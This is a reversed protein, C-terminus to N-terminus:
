RIVDYDGIKSSQEQREIPSFSQFKELDDELSESLTLARVVAVCTVGCKMVDSVNGLDIGGIAVTPISMEHTSALEMSDILNQYLKLKSLGQPQSPMEKTTTAFIHGLAVYSPQYSQARLVEYYGHSSIGLHIGSAILRDLDVQEIDEQGLHVGFAGHEIALQWHDNIFVMANYERGLEIAEIIQQELDRKNGDKIRLQIIKIGLPLLKRIWLIDDVVPYLSFSTKPIQPFCHHNYQEFSDESLRRRNGILKPFDLYNTPWDPMNNKEHALTERSVDCLAARTVVLSDKFCFGLSILSIFWACHQQNAKDNIPMYSYTVGEGGDDMSQCWVDQYHIGEPSSSKVGIYINIHSIEEPGNSDNHYNLKFDCKTNSQISTFLDSVIKIERELTKITIWESRNVEIHINDSQLGYSFACELCSMIQPKLSMATQPLSIVIM